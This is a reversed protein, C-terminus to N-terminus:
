CDKKGRRKGVCKGKPKSYICGKKCFSTHLSVSASFLVAEEEDYDSFDCISRDSPDCCILPQETDSSDYYYDNEM